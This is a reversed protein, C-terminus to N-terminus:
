DIVGSETDKGETGNGERDRMAQIATVAGSLFRVGERLKRTGPLPQRRLPHFGALGGTLTVFRAVTMDPPGQAVSSGHHAALARLATIDQRTM